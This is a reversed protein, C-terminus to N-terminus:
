GRPRQPELASRLRVVHVQLAKRATAPEQGDWLADVLGDAPVVRGPSAALVALLLREKAGPVQLPGGDDGRVELPGLVAIHM